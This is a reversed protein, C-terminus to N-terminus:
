SISYHDEYIGAVDNKLFDARTLLPPEIHYGKNKLVRFKFDLLEAPVSLERAVDFFSEGSDNLLELLEDDEILLEAAFLNAEYEATSVMDFLEFEQFGQLLAIERHLVAHGLEHAVLIRAVVESVRSNLVINKIRAMVVFYAKLLNGCDKYRIRIDMAGCLEYPDRTRYRKALREVEDAVRSIKGM